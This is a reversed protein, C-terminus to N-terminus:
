AMTILTAGVSPLRAAMGTAVATHLADYLDPRTKALSRV